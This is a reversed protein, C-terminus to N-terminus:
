GPPPKPPHSANSNGNAWHGANRLVIGLAFRRAATLPGAIQGRFILRLLLRSLSELRRKGTAPGSPPGAPGLPQHM